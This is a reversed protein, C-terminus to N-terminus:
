IDEPYVTAYRDETEWVRVFKIPYKDKIKKLFFTAISENGSSKFGLNSLIEKLNKNEITSVIQKIDSIVDHHDIGQVYGTNTDIKGKLVIEVKFNHEHLNNGHSAHFREIIGIEAM